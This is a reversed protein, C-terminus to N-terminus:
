LNAINDVSVNSYNWGKPCTWDPTNYIKFSKNPHHKFIKSIQYDWYSHDVKDSDKPHYGNTGSYINNVKGEIGYLDFGIIDINDDLIAGLLLAYPGSGWNFPDDKRDRGKYPLDPLPNVDEFENYWRQRTYINLRGHNLAQKVMRRDCCILHDVNEDRFIANCGIKEDNIRSLDIRARSQGNGIVLM